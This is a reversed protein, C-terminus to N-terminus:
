YGTHVTWNGWASIMYFILISKLPLFTSAPHSGTYDMVLQKQELDLREYAKDLSDM